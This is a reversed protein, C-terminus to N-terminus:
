AHDGEVSADPVAAAASKLCRTLLNAVAQANAGELMDDHRAQLKEHQLASAHRSWLSASSPVGLDRRDPEFVTLQGKYTGPRYAASAFLARLAVARLAAPTARTRSRDLAANARNFSRHLHRDKFRVVAQMLQRYLYATWTRLRLLHHGPPLTALLGVFAVKDASSSLRRALEFAVLGGFSYGCLFYPGQPQQKRVATLYEDAMEEVSSHPLDCGDLGRAQIGIVAGPWSMRRCISFLEMVCGGVGHIFFLPTGQGPKLVVLPCYAVRANERLRACYAAFTPAQSILNTPLDRRLAKELEFTMTIARLSDGGLDFFDDEPCTLQLGLTDRWVRAVAIEIADTGIWSTDADAPRADAEARSKEVDLALLGRTDLKSNPLRPIVSALYYRWPRMHAPAVRRMMLGLEHFFQDSAAEDPSRAAVSRNALSGGAPALSPIGLSPQVYAVLRALGSESDIRAVVGVDRVSPHRRIATEVGDLEVRAGRIKVQRDKRGLRDYLGDPRRRVLDGTRFVRLNADGEDGQDGATQCQGQSWIGLAVYPSQVLLEGVEGEPTLEGDEDVVALENGLLPYGIPVREESEAVVEGVFWQMMPAETAAYVVQISTDHSMWARLAAVDSWLTTDGGVRVLRLFDGARSQSSEVVSRLLAPFAFLISIQCDRIVRHVERAGANQTDLLYFSAGALLSTILDRVGVITCLSTLTLFRDDSNIHASNISQSVRQLLNRQSNVIGKPRGTSGSTFLVCAAEDPGLRAPRWSSSADRTAKELNLTRVTAPIAGTTGHDGKSVLLMAPRSDDLVQAIWEPPYDPDLAVFPRGAALCGFMAIPLEPSVPVLIGVLDGPATAAAIREAWGTLVRWLEAYTISVEPGCLAIREPFRRVVRELLEVIPRAKSEDPFPDFPRNTPGNWDLPLNSRDNWHLAAGPFCSRAESM